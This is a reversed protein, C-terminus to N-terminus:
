YTLWDDLEEFYGDELEPFLPNSDIEGADFSNRVEEVSEEFWNVRFLDAGTEPEVVPADPTYDRNEFGFGPEDAGWSFSEVADVFPADPERLMAELDGFEPLDPGDVQPLDVRPLSYEQNLGSQHGVGWEEDQLPPTAPEDMVDTGPIGVMEEAMRSEWESFGGQGFVGNNLTDSPEWGSYDYAEATSYSSVGADGSQMSSKTGTAWEDTEPYEVRERHRYVAPEQERYSNEHPYRTTRDRPTRNDATNNHSRTHESKKSRTNRETQAPGTSPSTPHVLNKLLSSVKIEIPSRVLEHSVANLGMDVEVIDPVLDLDLLEPAVDVDIYSFRTDVDAVRILRDYDVPKFYENNAQTSSAPRESTTRFVPRKPPSSGEASKKPRYSNTSATIRQTKQHGTAQPPARKVTTSQSKSPVKTPSPEPEKLEDEIESETLVSSSDAKTSSTSTTSTSNTSTRKPTPRFARRPHRDPTSTVVQYALMVLGVFAIVAGFLSVELFSTIFETFWAHFVDPVFLLAAGFFVMFLARLRGIVAM